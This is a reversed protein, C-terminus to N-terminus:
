VSLSSDFRMLALAKAALSPPAGLRRNLGEDHGVVRNEMDLGAAIYVMGDRLSHAFVADSAENVSFGDRGEPPNQKVWRFSMDGSYLPEVRRPFILERTASNSVDAGVVLDFDESGFRERM